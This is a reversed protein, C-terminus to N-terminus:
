SKIKYGVPCTPSSGSIQKILKGKQCTITIIKKKSAIVKPSSKLKAEADLASKVEPPIIGTCNPFGKYEIQSCDIGALAPDAKGSKKSALYKNWCTTTVSNDPQACNIEGNITKPQCEPLTAISGTCKSTNRNPWSGACAPDQSNAINACDLGAPAIVPSNKKAEEETVVAEPKVGTCVPFEKFAVDKCDIATTGKSWCTTTVANVPNKCNIEGGITMPESSIGSQANASTTTPAPNLPPPIPEGKCTTTVANIPNACNIEGNITMPIEESHAASPM